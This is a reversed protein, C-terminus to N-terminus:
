TALTVENDVVLPVILDAVRFMVGSLEEYGYVVSLSQGHIGGVDIHRVTAGLDFDGMLDEAVKSAAEMLLFEIQEQPTDKENMYFRVTMTHLEETGPSGGLPVRTVRAALLFIAAAVRERSAQKPEGIQNTRAYGSAALHSQIAQLTAKITFAAM